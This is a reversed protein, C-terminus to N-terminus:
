RGESSSAPSRSGTLPDSTWSSWPVEPTPASTTCCPTFAACIEGTPVSRLDEDDFGSGTGCGAAAVAGAAVRDPAATWCYKVIAMGCDDCGEDTPARGSAITAVSKDEAVIAEVEDDAVIAEVEADAVIAEVAADAVIAEVEADAVIAEAWTWSM